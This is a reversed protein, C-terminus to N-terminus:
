VAMLVRRMTMDAEVFLCGSLPAFDGKSVCHTHAGHSVAAFVASGTRGTKLTIGDLRISADCIPEGTEADNVVFTLTYAREHLPLPDVRVDATGTVEGSGATITTVGAALAVFHGTDDIIGISPDSSTWTLPAVIPKAHQDLTVANFRRARGAVVAATEPMVQITTLRPSPAPHDGSHGSATHPPVQIVDLRDADPCWKELNVLAQDITEGVSLECRVKFGYFNWRPGGSPSLHCVACSAGETGATGYRRNFSSMYRGFASAERAEAFAMIIVFLM